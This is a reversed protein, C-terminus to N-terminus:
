VALPTQLFLDVELVINCPHIVLLRLMEVFIDLQQRTRMMKVIRLITWFQIQPQSLVNGVVYLIAITILLVYSGSPSKM